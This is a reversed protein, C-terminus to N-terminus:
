AVIKKPIDAVNNAGLVKQIAVMSLGGACTKIGIAAGM